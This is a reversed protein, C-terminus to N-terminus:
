WDYSLYWHSKIQRYVVDHKQRKGPEVPNQDLSAFVPTLEHESYAYGKSSGRNVMGKSFAIMFIIPGKSDSERTLGSELGLKGFLARYEDWRQKSFGLESDPRPWAWNNELRTFDNAIRIVKADENSMAVLKNFDAENKQFNAILTDDSPHPKDLNFPDQAVVAICVLLMFLILRM